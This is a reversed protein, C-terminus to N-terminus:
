SFSLRWGIIRGTMTSTYLWATAARRRSSQRRLTRLPSELASRRVLRAPVQQM